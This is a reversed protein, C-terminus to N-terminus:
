AIRILDILIMKDKCVRYNEVSYAKNGIRLILQLKNNRTAKFGHWRAWEIVCDELSGNEYHKTEVARFIM